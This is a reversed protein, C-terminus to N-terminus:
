QVKHTNPRVEQRFLYSSLARNKKDPIFDLYPRIMFFYLLIFVGSLAVGLRMIAFAYLRYLWMLELSDIAARAQANLFFSEGVGSIGGTLSM